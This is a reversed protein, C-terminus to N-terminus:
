HSTTLAPLDDIPIGLVDAFVDGLVFGARKALDGSIKIPPTLNNSGISPHLHESPSDSL